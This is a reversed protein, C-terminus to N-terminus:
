EPCFEINTIRVDTPSTSWFFIGLHISTIDGDLGYDWPVEYTFDNNAFFTHQIDEQNTNEFNVTLYFDGSFDGSTGNRNVSVKVVSNQYGVNWNANPGTTIPIINDGGGANAPISWYSSEWTVGSGVDPVWYTDDFYQDCPNGSVYPTSAVIGNIMAM